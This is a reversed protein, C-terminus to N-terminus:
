LSPTRWSPAQQLPTRRSTQTTRGQSGSIRSAQHALARSGAADRLSVEQERPGHSALRARCCSSSTIRGRNTGTPGSIFSRPQHPPFSRRMSRPDGRCSGRRRQLRHIRNARSTEADLGISMGNPLGTPCGIFRVLSVRPTPFDAFASVSPSIRSIM